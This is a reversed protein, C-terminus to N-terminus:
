PKRAIAIISTPRWPLFRDIRRWLWVFRDFLAMQSREVSRRKLIRGAVFWAPRSIRNFRIMREVVFGANSMKASLEDESYRRVHGLAEDMAGFLRQGEPVLLIARGGHNLIGHINRLASADDHIHELVNLCIVTDIGSSEGSIAVEQIARLDEERTFDCVAVRANERNSLRARLEGVREANADTAVYIRPREALLASLSGIGAGLEVVTEGIFPMITDAMWQNFHPAAALAHL